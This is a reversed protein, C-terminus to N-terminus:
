RKQCVAIFEKSTENLENGKYDGLIKYKEFKSREIVHELEYRFFFRLPVKWDETMTKNDEDWELRFHINILQNILDPKTSVTRKLKKDPQYEGIFDVQNHIGDLLQKLDPVFVDFIFRGGPNLHDYINNLAKVQDDKEIVHMIVRFPALILDFSFNYNFNVINQRSIRPHQDKDLKKKLVDLMSKSVDCGYIDVGSQLADMFFRGTGVGIELAKGSTQKIQNLFFDHDVTNRLQDYIVDYFRAFNKPYEHTM